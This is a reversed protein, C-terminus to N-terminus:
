LGLGRGLSEVVCGHDRLQQRQQKSLVSFADFIVPKNDGLWDLYDMTQFEGHPVSIVVADIGDAAPISDPTDLALEEWHEVLPDYVDISAGKSKVYQYFPESPTYRTDGVDQRYTIGLLLMSKGEFGGILEEVRQASRIPSQQNADVSRASFPFELDLDYYERAALQGFLPDKTLCYGGVGFGPTRINNHTPRVRIADIVEYLDIGVKESFKGWEEIFAITTARYSNELVKSTESATTNSLETLQYEDTNIVTELFERCKKAAQQTHGSYVRWFNVISNYYDKGPMVREYSHAIHVSDTPLNRKQLEAEVIPVIVNQTTGPPVTTETIMLAGPKVREAIVRIASKFGELKIKPPSADWDIDLHVDILIIDADEYVAPNVTASLNCAKHASELADSLNSDATEFPFKGNNLANVRKIGMPSDLDVGIVNYLAGTECQANAVAISMAAGVFGLGQVCVTKKCDTM